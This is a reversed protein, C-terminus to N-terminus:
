NKESLLLSPSPPPFLAPELFSLSYITTPTQPNGTFLPWCKRICFPFPAPLESSASRFPQHTSMNVHQCRAHTNVNNTLEKCQLFTPQTQQPTHNHTYYSHTHTKRHLLAVILTSMDVDIMSMCRRVVPRSCDMHLATHLPRLESQLM